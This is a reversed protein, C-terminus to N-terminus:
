RDRADRLRRVNAFHRAYYELAAFVDDVELDFWAAVDDVRATEEYDRIFDVVRAATVGNAFVGDPSLRGEFLSM